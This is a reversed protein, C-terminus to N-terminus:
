VRVKSFGIDAHSELRGTQALTPFVLVLLNSSATRIASTPPIVTQLLPQLKRRLEVESWHGNTFEALRLEVEAALDATNTEIGTTHLDWTASDFWDRFATLDERGTLFNALHDYISSYLQNGM